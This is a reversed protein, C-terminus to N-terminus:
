ASPRAGVRAAVPRPKPPSAGAAVLPLHIAFVTGGAEGALSVTGGHATAIAKVVALGLGSGRRVSEVDTRYFRDFIREQELAPVGPGSDRVEIAVGEDDERAGLSVHGGRETARLANEVLADLACRLREEDGRVTFSGAVDVGIPRRSATEWRAGVERLLEGVDLRTRSLFRPEEATCLLLLRDSMASLRRLEDLAVGVDDREEGDALQDHVLELHGRAITLPTRLSHAADHVFGRQHEIARDVRALAHERRRAHWVMTLYVAAMLPIETMEVASQGAGGPALMAAGTTAAVVAVVLWTARVGWLRVGALLTLGIWIWHFPVTPFGPAAVMLALCAIVFAAVRVDFRREASL